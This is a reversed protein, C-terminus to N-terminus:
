VYVGLLREERKLTGRRGDMYILGLIITMKRRFLGKQGGVLHLRRSEPGPGRQHQKKKQQNRATGWLLYSHYLLIINSLRAEYFGCINERGTIM